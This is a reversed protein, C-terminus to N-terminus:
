VLLITPLTLHTYSVPGAGLSALGKGLAGMESNGKNGFMSRLSEQNAAEPQNNNFGIGSVLQGTDGKIAVLVREVDQLQRVVPDSSDADSLVSTASGASVMNNAGAVSMLGLNGSDDGAADMQGRGGALSGLLGGLGFGGVGALGPALLGGKDGRRRQPRPRAGTGSKGGRGFLKKLFPIGRLYSM